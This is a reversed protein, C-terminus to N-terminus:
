ASKKVYSNQLLNKEKQFLRKRKIHLNLLTMAAPTVGEIRSAQLLNTPRILELKTLIENSLGKIKKYELDNPIKISEYKKIAEVEAKQRDIYVEYKAINSLQNIVKFDVNVVDPWILKMKEINEPSQGLLDFATRKKGDKKVKLGIREAQNPSIKLSKFLIMAENIDQMKNQFLKKRLSSITGLKLGTNTLRQDANDARLLLRFEARSTFMRYPELVGKTTLDDILVGIYGEDRGIIFPNQSKLYRYANIGAIIGQSAAEEYGTTGNIQGALFFGNVKKLELSQKLSRPDVYDYEIAYGPQLIQVKELGKITSLFELQTKEPLSTSIGNPYVVNSNLGEPELFIQHRDKDSFRHVKDEISPCYRPGKSSINGNFIASKHINDRIIKHTENNTYTIYCDIQELNIKTTLFSFFVPEIDAKQKELEKWNITEALLRPPTGTKLRGMPLKLDYLFDALNISASDGKRGGSFSKDGIHIKGNLFTGTTLIISKAYIKKRDSLVVGKIKNNDVVLSSVEESLISLNKLGVLSNYVYNKYVKRDIQTRPGQVAPGKSRNLLRFQIGSFDSASPMLGGLADIERVLHGTGLGGIAPNCSMEGIKNEDNTILLTNAGLVSCIHSAETGAHGGGIVIIDYYQKM